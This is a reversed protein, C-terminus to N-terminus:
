PEGSEGTRIRVESTSNEPTRWPGSWGSRIWREQGAGAEHLVCKGKRRRSAGAPGRERRARGDEEEGSAGFVLIFNPYNSGSGMSCFRVCMAFGPTFLRCGVFHVHLFSM